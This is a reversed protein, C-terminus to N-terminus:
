QIAQDFSEAFSDLQPSEEHLIEPQSIETVVDIGMVACATSSRPTPQPPDKPWRSSPDPRKGPEYQQQTLLLPQKPTPFQRPEPSKTLRLYNTALGAPSLSPVLARQIPEQHTRSSSKARTCPSKSHDSPTKFRKELVQSWEDM